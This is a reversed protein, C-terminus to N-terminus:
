HAQQSHQCSSCTHLTISFLVKLSAKRVSHRAWVCWASCPMSCTSKSSIQHFIFYILDPFLAFEIIIYMFKIYIYLELEHFTLYTGLVIHCLISFCGMLIARIFDSIFYCLPLLYFLLIVVSILYKFCM